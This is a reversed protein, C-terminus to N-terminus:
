IRIIPLKEGLAELLRAIDDPDSTVIADRREVAGLVVSADVIDVTRSKGLLNGIAKARRTTLPEVACANVARAVMVAGSRWAQALVTIPVTLVSRRELSRKVIGFFLPSRKEAAILAGTDLTLGQAV